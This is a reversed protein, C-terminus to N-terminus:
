QGFVMYGVVENVHHVETNLSQEEDILVDVAFGDLHNERINATDTGNTTQMDALFVPAAAFPQPFMINVYDEAVENATRAVLFRVDGVSGSAPEWALYAVTETAHVQENAEQEQMLYAFGQPTVDQVRGTVADAENFTTITTMVVPAVNCAQSFRVAQPTSTASTQFAAAELLTGDSLQYQGQEIVLYGVTEVVHKGDLYDWEQIRIDFGSADVNRIRVMSPDRGAHSLPGTVVIPHQFTSALTVRTWQHDIQVQGVEMSPLQPNIDFIGPDSGSDIEEGDSVGDNDSDNDLLNILGDSDVDNNWHEGWYALEAADALGDNDSDAKQPDTGYIAEDADTLGDNDSDPEEVARSLLIYGVNEALHRVEENASQEEDIQVQVSTTDKNQWRIGATDSGNFSQMDAIFAPAQGSDSNFTLTEFVDTVVNGSAAIEYALDDITGSAPEWAIYAITETEPATPRDAEQTQLRFEFGETNINSLRPVVTETENFSVVSSVVVPIKNYSQEFLVSQADYTGATTFHSAELRTGDTLLYSGREMVLYSVSETVHSGDLYPWEQIRIDFGIADVNSIRVVAPQDGNFSLPGAVVVPDIFQKKFNIRTWSHDIELEGFEIVPESTDMIEFRATITHNATVNDLTCTQMAGVSQGDIIVDAVRYGTDPTLKLMLSTGCEVSIEGSPTITGNAEALASVVYQDKAFSAEITHNAIVDKFTYSKVSGVSTGDVLVDAVHYNADASMTYTQDGGHAITTSGKPTITGNAGASAAITYSDTAFNVAITHDATVNSFTYSSVAGINNGDVAVSAIHHHTASTFTYTLDDGDDVATTGEPWITGNGSASANVQHVVPSPLSGAELVVENSYGSENGYTDYATAAFYYDTGEALGTLTVEPNSSDALSSLPIEVPSTGQIIGSGNYPEGSSGSKYYIRYGALSAESNASWALTVQSAALSAAPLLLIIVVAMLYVFGRQWRFNKSTFFRLRDQFM